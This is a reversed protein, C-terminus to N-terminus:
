FRSYVLFKALFIGGLALYSIFIGVVVIVFCPKHFWQLIKEKPQEIFLQKGKILLGFYLIHIFIPFFTWGPFKVLFAVAVAFLLDIAFVIFATYWAWKEKKSLGHALALWVLGSFIVVVVNLLGLWWGKLIVGVLQLFGGVMALWGFFRLIGVLIRISKM